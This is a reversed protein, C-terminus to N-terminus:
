VSERRERETERVFVCKRECWCGCVCEREFVCVSERERERQRDNVGKLLCKSSLMIVEVVFDSFSQRVFLKFFKLM